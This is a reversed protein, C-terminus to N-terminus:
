NLNVYPLGKQSRNKRDRSTTVMVKVGKRVFVSSDFSYVLVLSM